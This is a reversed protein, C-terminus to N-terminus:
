AIAKRSCPRIERETHPESRQFEAVCRRAIADLPFADTSKDLPKNM